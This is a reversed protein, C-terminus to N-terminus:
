GSTTERNAAVHPLSKKEPKAPLSIKAKRDGDPWERCLITMGRSPFSINSHKIIPNGITHIRDLGAGSYPILGGRYTDRDRHRRKGLGTGRGGLAAARRHDSRATRGSFPKAVAGTYKGDALVDTHRHRPFEAGLSGHALSVDVAAASRRLIDAGVTVADGNKRVRNQGLCLGDLPLTRRDPPADVNTKPLSADAWAPAEGWDMHLFPLSSGQPRERGKEIGYLDYEQKPITGEVANSYAGVVAPM